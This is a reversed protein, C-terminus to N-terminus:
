PGADPVGTGPDPIRVRFDGSGSTIGDAISLDPDSCAVCLVELRVYGAPPGTPLVLMGSLWISAPLTLTLPAGGTTAGRARAMAVGDPPEVLVQYPLGPALPLAVTGGAGTTGSVTVGAGVAYLGSAIAFVQAGEVGVSITTPVPAAAALTAPPAALDIDTTGPTQGTAGAPDVVVHYRGVPLTIPPLLGTEDAVFAARAFTAAAHPTGDVALTGAPLTGDDVFTVVAGPLTGGDSRVARPTFTATPLDPLSVTLMAGARLFVGAAGGLELRVAGSAPLVTVTLPGKDARLHAAFSGDAATEALLPPLTAVGIAVRAGSLAQGDGGRVVGTVPDGADLVLGRGLDLPSALFRAPAVSTGAPVVLVNYSQTPLYGAFAGTADAFLEALAPRDTDLRLYASMGGAPGTIRGAVHTGLALARTGPLRYDTGGLVEVTQDLQVPAGDTPTFRLRYMATRADKVHVDLQALGTACFSLGTATVEAVYSGPTEARFTVDTGTAPTTAVNGTPGAVHWSFNVFGTSGVLSAVGRITSPATADTPTLAVQVACGPADHVTNADQSPRADPAPGGDVSSSNAGSCAVLSLCLISRKM